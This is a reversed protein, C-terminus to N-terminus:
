VIIIYPFHPYLLLGRVDMNVHEYIELIRAGLDEVAHTKIDDM